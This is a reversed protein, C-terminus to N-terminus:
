NCEKEESKEKVGSVMERIYRHPVDAKVANLVLEGKGSEKVLNYFDTFTMTVRDESGFMDALGM